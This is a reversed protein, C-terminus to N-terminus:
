FLYLTCICLVLCEQRLETLVVKSVGCMVDHKGEM